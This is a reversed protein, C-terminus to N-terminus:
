ICYGGTSEISVRRAFERMYAEKEDFIRRSEDFNLLMRHKECEAGYHEKLFKDLAELSARDYYATGMVHMWIGYSGFHDLLDADQLLRAWLDYKEEQPRRDCHASILRAVEELADADMYETL